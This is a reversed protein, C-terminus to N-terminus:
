FYYPFSRAVSRFEAKAITPVEIEVANKTTVKDRRSSPSKMVFNESVTFNLSTWSVRAEDSIEGM